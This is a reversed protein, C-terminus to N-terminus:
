RFIMDKDRSEGGGVGKWRPDSAAEVQGNAKNWIVIQMNGWPREAPALTYGRASLAAAEAESLAGPETSVSDPQYQHHIRPASVAQEASSGALVMSLGQFVMTIIRSGGPSGIAAVRDDGLLITPTMSSLPRKGPAIANADDGILGFANPVGPKVSFDDMENNLVFGTGPVVFASGFPLNVSQTVAAVNGETDIISFHSTDSGEQGASIGPLADSPTAKSSHISARLGAAYYPSLLMEMPMQVFDPDGLYIARDRYVRRMAEIEYHLRTVRDYDALPYASLIHFLGVLAVGGSSPPPSTLIEQSRYQFRLPEREVAQYQALDDLSWIGGAAQVGAVLTDATAGAYYGRHGQTAMRELVTAIDPNRMRAGAAPAKGQRLFLKAAGPSQALQDTRFSIMTANKDSWVYGKRALRIAPALSQKLPLKGYREAVLVLGAPIGPIGAALAGNVSRARQANGDADLYMDRTAALPAKERADVFVAKGDSARHLLFFGGGGLGSSEPEVVALAASVAVAADFANGGQELIEFGAATAQRNASAIGAAHPKADGQSWALAPTLALGLWLVLGACLSSVRWESKM